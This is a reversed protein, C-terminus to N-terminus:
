SSSSSSSSFLCTYCMQLLKAHGNKSHLNKPATEFSGGDGSCEEDVDVISCHSSVGKALGSFNHKQVEMLGDSGTEAFFSIWLCQRMEMSDSWVSLFKFVNYWAILGWKTLILETAISQSGTALHFKKSHKILCKTSFARLYACKGTWVYNAAVSCSSSPASAFWRGKVAACMWCEPSVCGAIASIDDKFHRRLDECIECKHYLLTEYTPGLQYTYFNFMNWCDVSQIM